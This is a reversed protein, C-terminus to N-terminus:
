GHISIACRFYRNAVRTRRDAREWSWWPQDGDTHVLRMGRSMVVDSEAEDPIGMQFAPSPFTDSVWETEPGDAQWAHIVSSMGARAASEWELVSPLRGGPVFGACWLRAEDYSACHVDGADGDTPCAASPHLSADAQSRFASASVRENQLCFARVNHHQPVTSTRAPWTPRDDPGVLMFDRRPIMTFGTPCHLPASADASAVRASAADPVVNSISPAPHRDRRCHTMAGACLALLAPGFVTRWRAM